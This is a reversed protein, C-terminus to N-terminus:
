PLGLGGDGDLEIVFSCSLCVLMHSLLFTEAPKRKEKKIIFVTTCLSCPLTYCIEVVCTRIQIYISKSWATIIHIDCCVVYMGCVVCWVGCVM